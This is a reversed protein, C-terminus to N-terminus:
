IYQLIDMVLEKKKPHLFIEELVQETYDGFLPGWVTQIIDISSMTLNAEIIVPNDDRDIAIDWGILRFHPFRQAAQKVIKKVDSMFDFKVTCFRGGDPHEEFRNGLADYAFDALSGDELIKCYIGGNSANDVHSNGVGMRFIAPLIKIDNDILLTMIRITNVSQPHLVATVESQEILEQFILNESNVSHLYNEIQEYSPNKFVVVGKGGYSGMSPKVVFQKAAILKRIADTKDILNYMEDEFIGNILHVISQPKRFGTLYLDFYNKDAIGAEINRNNLYGDIYGAFIDDPIYRVDFYGARDCYYEHYHLDMEDIYQKWFSCIKQKQEDSLQKVNNSFLEHSDIRYCQMGLKALRMFFAEYLHKLEIYAKEEWPYLDM